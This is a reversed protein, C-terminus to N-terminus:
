NQDNDSSHKLMNTDGDSSTGQLVICSAREVRLIDFDHDPSELVEDDDDSARKLM